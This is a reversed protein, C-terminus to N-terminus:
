CAPKVTGASERLRLSVRRGCASESLRQRRQELVFEDLDDHKCTTRSPASRGSRQSATSGGGIACRPHLQQHAGRDSASVGFSAMSTAPTRPARRPIRRGELAPMALDSRLPAGCSRSACWAATSRIVITVAACRRPSTAPWADPPLESSSTASRRDLQPRGACDTPCADPIVPTDIPHPYRTSRKATGRKPDRSRTSLRVRSSTATRIGRTPSYPPELRHGKLERASTKSIGTRYTTPLRPM